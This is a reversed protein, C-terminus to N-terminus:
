LTGMIKNKAATTIELNQIYNKLEKKMLEFSHTLQSIEDHGKVSPLMTDFNGAGIEESALALKEIPRTIKKSIITIVVFILIIGGLGLALLTIFLAHLDAFLEKEPFIIGLSWENAPLPMYYFWAKINNNLTNYSVFNSEGHIMSKGIERLDPRNMETALSFISENMILTDAPHTLFTGKKSIL